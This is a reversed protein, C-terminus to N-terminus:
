ALYIKEEEIGRQLMKEKVEEAAARNSIGILYMCEKMGAMDEMGYIQIYKRLAEYNTDMWYLQKKPYKKEIIDKWRLCRASAGYLAINQYKKVNKLIRKNESWMEKKMKVLEHMERECVRIYSLLNKMDAMFIETRGPFWMNNEHCWRKLARGPRLWCIGDYGGHPFKRGFPRCGIYIYKAEIDMCRNLPAQLTNEGLNKMLIIQKINERAFVINHALTGEISAFVKCSKMLAVQMEVSEKEPSVIMYGNKRFIKEILNEGIENKRDLGTRTYYIKESTKYQEAEVKRIISQFIKRFEVTYDCERDHKGWNLFFDEIKGVTFYYPNYQLAPSPILICKVKTPKRIDLLRDKEVGLLRFIDTVKSSMKNEEFWLGCFAVKYDAENELLYWLRVSCEAIFHGWHDRMPGVYIVTEDFYNCEKKDYEYKGGFRHWVGMGSEEVFEGSEDLVGGIGWDFVQSPYRAPLITGENVVKVM